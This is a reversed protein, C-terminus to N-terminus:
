EKKDNNVVGFLKLKEIAEKHGQKAAAQLFTQAYTMDFVDHNGSSNKADATDALPMGVSQVSKNFFFMGIKYQTEANGKELIEIMEEPTM